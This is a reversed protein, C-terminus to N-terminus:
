RKGSWIPWSAVVGASDVQYRPIICQYESRPLEYHAIKLQQMCEELVPNELDCQSIALLSAPMDTKGCCLLAYHIVAIAILSPKYDLFNDFILTIESLYRTFSYLHEISALEPVCEHYVSVFDITTPMYIDFNLSNLVLEEMLLIEKPDYENDAKMALDRIGIYSVDECKSSIHLCTAGLLNLEPFQLGGYGQRQEPETRSQAYRDILAMAYYLTRLCMHRDFESLIDVLWNVLRMRDKSAIRMQHAHPAQSEELHRLFSTQQLTTKQINRLGPHSFLEEPELNSTAEACDYVHQLEPDVQNFFPHTLAEKAGLRAAPDYRLLSTLLSFADDSANSMAGRLRNSDWNPFITSQYNPLHKFVPWEETTPTGMKHFIQFLQDIECLGTFLPKRQIIEALICGVSWVDVAATYDSQGMLIEPPRYWLTIVETTFKKPPHCLIRVLAFDAVRLHAGELPNEGKGPVILLHKPKLNRHLIGRRHCYFVAEMLQKTLSLIHREEFKVSDRNMYDQLSEETYSFLLHLKFDHLNVAELHCINPHHIKKLTALERMMYYPIGETDPYVRARKIAYERKEARSYAQYCNGETGKNKLKGFRFCNLNLQGSGLVHPIRSWIETGNALDRFKTCVQQVTFFEDINVGRRSVFFGLIRVIVADPLDFIRAGLGSRDSSSTDDHAEFLPNSAKRGARSRSTFHAKETKLFKKAKVVSGDNTIDQLAKKQRRKKGKGKQEPV